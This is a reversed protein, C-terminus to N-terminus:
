IQLLIVYINEAKGTVLPQHARLSRATQAKTVTYFDPRPLPAAATHLGIQM